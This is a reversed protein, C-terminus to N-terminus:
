VVVFNRGRNNGSYPTYQAALDAAGPGTLNITYNGYSSRRLFSGTTTNTQPTIDSAACNVTLTPTFDSNNFFWRFLVGTYTCGNKFEFNGTYQGNASYSSNCCINGYSCQNSDLNITGNTFAEMETLLNNIVTADSGIHVNSNFARCNNLVYNAQQLKPLDVPKNFSNVVEFIRDVTKLKPLSVTSNFTGMFHFAYSQISELEPMSVPHNYIPLYSLFRGNITKLKNFEFFANFGVNGFFLDGDVLTVENGTIKSASTFADLHGRLFNSGITTINALNIDSDFVVTQNNSVLMFNNGLSTVWSPFEIPMNLNIFGQLFNNGISKPTFSASDQNTNFKWGTVWTNQITKGNHLTMNSTGTHSQNFLLDWDSAETVMYEYDKGDDPNHYYLWGYCPLIKHRGYIKKGNYWMTSIVKGGIYPDLPGKGNIFLAM